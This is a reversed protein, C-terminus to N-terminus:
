ALSLFTHFLPPLSTTQAIELDSIEWFTCFTSKRNNGHSSASVKLYKKIFLARTTTMFNFIKVIKSEEKDKGIYLRPLECWALTKIESNTHLIENNDNSHKDCEEPKHPM